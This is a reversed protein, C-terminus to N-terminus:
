VAFLFKPPRSRLSAIQESLTPGIDSGVTVAGFLLTVIPLLAPIASIRKTNM